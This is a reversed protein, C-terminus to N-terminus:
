LIYQSLRIMHRVAHITDAETKEYEKGILQLTREPIMLANCVNNNGEIIQERPHGFSEALDRLFDIEESGDMAGFHFVGEGSKEIVAAMMNAMHNTALRNQLVGTDITLSEGSLMHELFTETRALRNPAWGHTAGFRFISHNKSNSTLENECKAKFVGYETQANPLEDEYHEETLNADLANFSSFYNYHCDETNCKDILYKHLSFSDDDEGRSMNIVIDPNLNNFTNDIIELDKSTAKFTEIHHEPANNVVSGIIKCNSIHKQLSPILYHAVWGSSGLLLIKKM